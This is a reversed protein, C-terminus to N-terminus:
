VGLGKVIGVISIWLRASGLFISLNMVDATVQSTIAVIGCRTGGGEIHVISQTLGSIFTFPQRYIHVKTSDETEKTSGYDLRSALAVFM